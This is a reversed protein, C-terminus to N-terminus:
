LSINSLMKRFRISKFASQLDDFTGLGVLSEALKGVHFSSVSYGQKILLNYSPALYYEGRVTEESAFLLNLSLELMQISSWGYIGTTAIDSIEEKEKVETVREGELNVYSWRDGSATMTMILGAHSNRIADLKATFEALGGLLFQDSNAVIVPQDERLNGLAAAVTRAPGDTLETLEIYKYNFNVHALARPSWDRLGTGQRGIVILTDNESIDLNWVVLDIMKHGYIPILPKSVGPYYKQLRTGSGAAPIVFVTM